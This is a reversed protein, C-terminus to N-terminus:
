SDQKGGKEEGKYVKKLDDIASQLEEVAQAFHSSVQVSQQSLNKIYEASKISVSNLGETIHEFLKKASEDVNKFRTDYDSWIKQLVINSRDIREISEPLKQITQSLSSSMNKLQGSLADLSNIYKENKQAIQEQQDVAKQFHGVASKVSDATVHNIESLAKELRDSFSHLRAATQELLSQYNTKSKEMQKLLDNNTGSFNLLVKKFEEQSNSFTQAMGKKIDETIVEMNQLTQVFSEHIREQNELSSSSLKEILNKATEENQKQSNELRSILPPINDQLSTLTKEMNEVQKRSFDGMGKTMQNAINNLFSESVNQNSQSIVQQIQGGMQEISNGVIDGIKLAIKEDMNSLYKGQQRSERLQMTLLHEETIFKLSNELTYTFKNLQIQLASMKKDSSFNFLLSFFLGVVSTFFAVSAGSMLIEVAQNLNQNGEELYPLVRLLSISLGVFTGLVGLGVLIGPMSELLKLNINKQKLFNELTFFKEPRISNQFVPERDTPEILQETFEMWLHSFVSRDDKFYDDIEQHQRVFENRKEEITDATPLKQIAEKFNKNLQETEKWFSLLGPLGFAKIFTVYLIVLIFVATITLSLPDINSM